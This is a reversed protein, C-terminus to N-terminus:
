LMKFRGNYKNGGNDLNHLSYSDLIKKYPALEDINYSYTTSLVDIKETTIGEAGLRNYRVVVMQEAVFDLDAPLETIGLYICITDIAQELLIALIKDKSKDALSLLVKIRDLRPDKNEM